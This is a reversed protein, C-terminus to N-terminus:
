RAYKDGPGDAAVIPSADTLISIFRTAATRRMAKNASRARVTRVPV